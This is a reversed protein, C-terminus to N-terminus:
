ELRGVSVFSTNKQLSLSNFPLVTFDNLYIIFNGNCILLDKLSTKYYSDNETM